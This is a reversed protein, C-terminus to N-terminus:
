HIDPPDTKNEDEHEAGDTHWITGLLGQLGAQLIGGTTFVHRVPHETADDANPTGACLYDIHLYEGVKVDEKGRVLQRAEDYFWEGQLHYRDPHCDAVLGHFGCHFFGPKGPYKKLGVGPPDSWVEPGPPMNETPPCLLTEGRAKAAEAAAAEDDAVCVPPLPCYELECVSDSGDKFAAAAPFARAGYTDDLPVPALGWGGVQCTNAPGTEGQIIPKVQITAGKNDGFADCTQHRSAASEFNIPDGM